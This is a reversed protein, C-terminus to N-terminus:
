IDLFQECEFLLKCAILCCNNYKKVEHVKKSSEFRPMLETILKWRRGGYQGFEESFKLLSFLHPDRSARTGVKLRQKSYVTCNCCIIYKININYTDRLGKICLTTFHGFM